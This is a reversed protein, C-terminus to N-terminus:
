CTEGGYALMNGLPIQFGIAQYMEVDYDACGVTLSSVECQEFAYSVLRRAIGNHRYEPKIYFDEFVGSKDYKFTSYTVCISCCAVLSEDFICGYFHIHGKEIAKRLSELEMESPADEEIAMKYDKQLSKLEDFMETGIKEFKMNTDEMIKIPPNTETYGGFM